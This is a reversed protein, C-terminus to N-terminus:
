EMPCVAMREDEPVKARAEDCLADWLPMVREGVANSRTQLAALSPRVNPAEGLWSPNYARVCTLATFRGEDCLSASLANYEWVETRLARAMVSPDNYDIEVTPAPRQDDFTLERVRGNMVSWRGIEIHLGFPDIPEAQAPAALLCAALAAGLLIRM